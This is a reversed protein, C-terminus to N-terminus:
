CEVWNRPPAVAYEAAKDEVEKGKKTRRAYHHATAGLDALEKVQELSNAMELATNAENLRALVEDGNEMRALVLSPPQTAEEPQEGNRPLESTIQEVGNPNAAAVPALPPSSPQQQESVARSPHLVFHQGAPAPTSIFVPEAAVSRGEQSHRFTPQQEATIQEFDAPAEAMAMVVPERQQEFAICAQIAGYLNHWDDGSEAWHGEIKTLLGSNVVGHFEQASLDALVRGRFMRLRDM